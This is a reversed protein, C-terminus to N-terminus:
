CPESKLRGRVAACLGGAHCVDYNLKTGGQRQKTKVAARKLYLSQQHRHLISGDAPYSM